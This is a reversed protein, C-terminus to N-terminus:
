YIASQRDIRGSCVWAAFFFFTTSRTRTLIPATRQLVSHYQFPVKYYLTKTCLLVSATSQITCLLLHTKTTINKHTNKHYHPPTKQPTKHHHPPTKQPPTKQPATKTITNKHHHKQQRHKLPPTKTITNKNDTSKHHHKQQRHKQPPTTTSKNRYM